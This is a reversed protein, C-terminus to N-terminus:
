KLLIEMTEKKGKKKFYNKPPTKFNRNKQNMKEKKKL